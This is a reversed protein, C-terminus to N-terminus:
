YLKCSLVLCSLVSVTKLDHAVNGIMHRLENSKVEEALRANDFLLKQLKRRVTFALWNQRHYESLVFFDLVAAIVFM